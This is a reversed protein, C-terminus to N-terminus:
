DTGTVGAIDSWMSNVTFQIDSDLSAATIAANSTVAWAFSEVWKAPQRLVDAALAQRKAYVADSMQAKAEGAIQTAATAMAVKLRLQFTADAALNAQDIYAM